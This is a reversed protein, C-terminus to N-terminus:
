RAVAPARRQNRKPARYQRARRVSALQSTVLGAACPRPQRQGSTAVSAAGLASPVLDRASAARPHPAYVLLTYMIGFVPLHGILEQAPLLPIGLHFPVWAGLVVLRTLKGSILAAGIAAEILGIALVFVDDSFWTLGLAGHLVNFAPHHALFARGLEPDWIKEDLAM